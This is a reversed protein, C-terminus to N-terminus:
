VLKFGPQELRSIITGALGRAMADPKILVLSREM